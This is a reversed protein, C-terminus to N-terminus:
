PRKKIRNAPYRGAGFLLPISRKLRYRGIAEVVESITPRKEKRRLMALIGARAAILDIETAHMPHQEVLRVLEDDPLSGKGIHFEWKRIQLEEPPYRLALQLHFETPLRGIELDRSVVCTLGDCDRMKFLFASLANENAKEHAKSLAPELAADTDLFLRMSGDGITNTFSYTLPTVERQTVPDRLKDDALVPGLVNKLEFRRVQLRCERALADVAAVGIDLDSCSILINLGKGEKKLEAWVRAISKLDEKQNNWLPLADIQQIPSYQVCLGNNEELSSNQLNSTYELLDRTLVPRVSGKPRANNIALFISNKILGGTFQYREAFDELDVDAALDVLPPILSNWIKLRTTSDPIGFHVKIAIRRELAPDLKVPKNTALVVICHALELEILLARNLESYSEDFMDDCEDLFVIGGRLAGERFLMSLIEQHSGSIKDMNQLSLSILYRDFHAALARTLMTKGTGSPGHFLFVLGTGYGFFEDIKELTGDDRAMLYTEICATIEEKRTEPLIVQDLRVNSKEVKIYRFASSYLNNDGLIYRVVRDEVYLREALVNPSHDFGSMPIVIGERMLTGDLSFYRRKNLQERYEPCIISLITDIRMGGDWSNSEFECKEFISSFRPATIRMLLLLLVNSEFRDLKWEELFSLFNLTVGRQVAPAERQRNESVVDDLISQIKDLSIGLPLFPFHKQFEERSDEASTTEGALRRMDAAALMLTAERELAQLHDFNDEFPSLSLKPGRQAKGLSVVQAAQSQTSHDTISSGRDM